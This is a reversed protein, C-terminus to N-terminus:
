QDMQLGPKYAQQQSTDSLSDRHVEVLFRSIELLLRDGQSMGIM